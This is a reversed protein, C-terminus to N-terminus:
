SKLPPSSLLAQTSDFAEQLIKKGNPGASNFAIQLKEKYKALNTKLYNIYASDLSNNQSASQLSADTTKDALSALTVTSVKVNNKVLYAKLQAQDSALSASVTAALANTQPDQLPLQTQVLNTIRLTESGRAMANIIPQNSGSNRGSFWSLVFTVLILGIIVLLVIKIPKPLRPRSMGSKAPQNDKLMFDFDPKPSQPQM